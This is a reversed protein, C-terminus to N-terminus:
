NRVTRIRPINEIRIAVFTPYGLQHRRALEMVAKKWRLLQLCPKVDAPNIFTVCAGAVKTTVIATVEVYVHRRFPQTM